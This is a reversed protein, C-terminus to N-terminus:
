SLQSLPVSKKPFILILLPTHTHTHTHTKGMSLLAQSKTVGCVTAWWDGRDMPKELCSFVHSGGPSRGSVPISGVDGTDGANALLNKAVSGAPFYYSSNLPFKWWVSQLFIYSPLCPGLFFRQQSLFASLPSPGQKLPLLQVVLFSCPLLGQGIRPNTHPESFSCRTTIHSRLAFLTAIWSCTVDQDSAWLGEIKVLSPWHWVLVVPAARAHPGAAKM